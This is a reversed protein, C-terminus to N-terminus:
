GYGMGNCFHSFTVDLFLGQSMLVEGFGGRMDGDVVQHTPNGAANREELLQFGLAIVLLLTVEGGGLSFEDVFIQAVWLFLFLFLLLAAPLSEALRHLVACVVASLAYFLRLETAYVSM